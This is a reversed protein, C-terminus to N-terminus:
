GVSPPPLNAVFREQGRRRLLSAVSLLALLLKKPTSKYVDKLLPVPM